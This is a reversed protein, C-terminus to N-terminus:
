PVVVAHSVTSESGWCKGPALAQICLVRISSIIEGVPLILLSPGNKGMPYSEMLTSAVASVCVLVALSLSLLHIM